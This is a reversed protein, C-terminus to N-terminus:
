EIRLDLLGHVGIAIAALARDFALALQDITEVREGFAGHAKAIMAYDPSPSLDALFMGDTAAATGQPYMALTSNRVAGWRRNNFIIALVPLGHAAAAWHCAVPNNFMYAGDGLTAIVPGAKAGRRVDAAAVGLAAGFGFGLGGAPSLGYFQDAAEFHALESRFSYENILTADKPMLAALAASATEATFKTMDLKEASLRKTRNRAVAKRRADIRVADREGPAGLASTLAALAAGPSATVSEVAPFSRLPYRSYLPDNDIEWLPASPRPNTV